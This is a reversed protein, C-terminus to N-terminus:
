VETTTTRPNAAIMVTLLHFANITITTAAANIYGSASAVVQIVDSTTSSVIPATSNAVYTGPSTMVPQSFTGLPSSTFTLNAESIPGTSYRVTVTLNSRMLLILNTPSADSTVQLSPIM